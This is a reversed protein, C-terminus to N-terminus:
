KPIRNFRFLESFRIVRICRLSERYTCEMYVHTKQLKPVINRGPIPTTNVPLAVSTGNCYVEASVLVLQERRFPAIPDNLLEEFDKEPVNGELSGIRIKVRQNLDCSYVYYYSEDRGVM